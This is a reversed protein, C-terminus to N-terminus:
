ELFSLLYLLSLFPILHRDVKRLLAKTQKHDFSSADDVKVDSHTEGNVKEGPLEVPHVPTQSM